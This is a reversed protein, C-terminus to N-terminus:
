QFRALITTLSRLERDRHLKLQRILCFIILGCFGLIGADAYASYAPALVLLSVLRGGAATLTRYAAETTETVLKEGLSVREVPFCLTTSGGAGTVCMSLNAPGTPITFLVTLGCLIIFPILIKQLPSLGISV